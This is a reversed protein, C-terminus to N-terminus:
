FRRTQLGLLALNWLHSFFDEFDDIFQRVPVKYIPYARKFAFHVYDYKALDSKQLLSSFYEIDAAFFNRKIIPQIIDWNFHRKTHFGNPEEPYFPYLDEGFHWYDEKYVPFKRNFLMYHSDM